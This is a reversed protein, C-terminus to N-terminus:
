MFFIFLIQILNHILVLFWFDKILYANINSRVLLLVLHIWLFKAFLNKKTCKYHYFLWVSELGKLALWFSFLNPDFIIYMKARTAMNNWISNKKMSKFINIFFQNGTNFSITESSDSSSNQNCIGLFVYEM